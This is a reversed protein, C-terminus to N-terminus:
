RRCCDVRGFKPHGPDVRHQLDCICHFISSLMENLAYWQHRIRQVVDVLTM